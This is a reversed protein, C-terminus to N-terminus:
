GAATGTPTLAPTPAGPAQDAPEIDTVLWQGSQVALTVSMGGADTAVRVNARESTASVVTGADLVTTAPVRSPDVTGLTALYEPTVLPKLDALWSAQVAAPRAWSNVFSAAVQVPTRSGVPPAASITAKGSASTRPITAPQTPSTTPVFTSSTSTPTPIIAAANQPQQASGADSSTTLRGVATFVVLLAATSVLLNRWSWLPWRIWRELRAIM